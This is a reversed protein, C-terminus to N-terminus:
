GKRNRNRPPALRIMLRQEEQPRFCFLFPTGDSLAGLEVIGPACPPELYTRYGDIRANVVVVAFSGPGLNSMEFDPPDAWDDGRWSVTIGLAGEAVERATGEGHVRARQYIEAQQAASLPVERVRGPM